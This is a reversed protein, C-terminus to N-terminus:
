NRGPQLLRQQRRIEGKFGLLELKWWKDGVVFSIPPSDPVVEVPAGHPRGNQYLEIWDLNLTTVLLQGDRFTYQLDTVTESALLRCCFEKLDRNDDQLDRKTLPRIFHGRVGRDEIGTGAVNAARTARRIAITYDIGAPLPQPMAATGHLAREVQHARWVNAGGAGTALDVSILSGIKNDVFGAAFLDGASYTNADVIAVVPGPYRQGFDNCRELPTLPVGRSHQEGSIVAAELSSRWPALNLENQPAGVMTRSVDTALISFRTPEIPHPTFLQLLREAAWVLGGPNSRLDIILGRRPLKELEATVHEIFGDDDVLDFSWLRLYGYKSGDAMEFTDARVVDRFDDPRVVSTGDAVGSAAPERAESEFWVTPSFLMKKARRSAEALPDVAYALEALGADNTAKPLDRMRAKQWKFRIEGPGQEGIFSVTVWDEVPPLAYRLPRLTLSELARARRADPRGGTEQEAHLDVATGIATGNWHTLEVGAIFGAGSFQLAQEARGAFVKSAIYHSGQDDMYHEILFPLAAVEGETHQPGLYRTHADRLETVIEAMCRHFETDDLGDMRQSLARLRQVPDLGYTARKQPLHTYLGEIINALTTIIQHREGLTLERGSRERPDFDSLEAAVAALARVEISM